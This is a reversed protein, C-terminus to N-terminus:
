KGDKRIKNRAKGLGLFHEKFHNKENGAKRIKNRAKRLGFFHGKFHNEENEM